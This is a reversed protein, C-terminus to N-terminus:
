FESESRVIWWKQGSEMTKWSIVNYKHTWIFQKSLNNKWKLGDLSNLIILGLPVMAPELWSFGPSFGILFGRATLDLSVLYFYKLYIFIVAQLILYEPSCQFVVFVLQFEFRCSWSQQNHGNRILKVLLLIFNYLHSDCRGDHAQYKINELNKM